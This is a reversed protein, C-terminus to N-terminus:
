EHGNGDGDCCGWLGVVRCPPALIGAHNHRRKISLLVLSKESHKITLSSRVTLGFTYVNRLAVVFQVRGTRCQATTNPYQGNNNTRTPSPTAIRTTISSGYTWSPDIQINAHVHEESQLTM